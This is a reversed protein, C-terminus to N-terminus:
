ESIALESECQEDMLLKARTFGREIATREMHCNFCRVDCKEIEEAVRDVSWGKQLVSGGITGSKQGRVHDFSLRLPRNEGCDVCHHKSFYENIFSAVAEKRTNIWGRPRKYPLNLKSSYLRTLKERLECPVNRRAEYRNRSERMKEQNAERWIRNNDNHCPRCYKRQSNFDEIPKTIKCKPCQKIDSLKRRRGDQRRIQMEHLLAFSPVSRRSFHLGSNRMLILAVPGVDDVLGLYRVQFLFALSKKANM